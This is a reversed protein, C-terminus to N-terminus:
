SLEPMKGAKGARLNYYRSSWCPRGHISAPMPDLGAKPPTQVNDICPDTKNNYNLSEAQGPGEYVTAKWGQVVAYLDYSDRLAAYLLACLLAPLITCM